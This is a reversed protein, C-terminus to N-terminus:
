QTDKIGLAPLQSRGATASPERAPERGLTLVARREGLGSEGDRFM